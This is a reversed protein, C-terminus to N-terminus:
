IEFFSVATDGWERRDKLKLRPHAEVSDSAAHEAVVICDGSLIGSEGLMELTKGVLKKGYPPDMFILDFEHGEESLLAIASSVKKQILIAKSEMSLIEINKRLTKIASWGSDVFVASECGRSLAEIGLTGAGAYLDLVRAGTLDIPLINFIAERVRDPTPRVKLSSKKGPSKLKRGGASGGTVRM